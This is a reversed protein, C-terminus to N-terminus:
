VAASYPVDFVTHLHRALVDLPLAGSGLVADHFAKMDFDDGHHEAIIRRLRQIELRGTMYSLAQAPMAIYRSIEGTIEAVSAPTNAAMYDIAQQRSCCFAHMGTDVVLRSARWADAALMGLLQIDSSYLGMEFALRESYLGWGEAYANFLTMRRIAPMDAMDLSLQLQFHHGPVAEHFAVSELDFIRRETPKSVNQYYAGARSGDMAAAMYYAMGSDEAEVEPIPLVGCEVSPITGFWEPAVSEARRVVDTVADLMQESSTWRLEPDTAMRQFISKVDTEGFVRQGLEAFDAHIQEIIALGQAHLEEPTLMTTTHAQILGQYMDLGDPLHILGVHEDERAGPLVDIILADRYNEFASVVDTLVRERVAELFHDQGNWEGSIAPMLPPAPNGLFNNIQDIAGRVLMKVPMRGELRGRELESIAQNLYLPIAQLRELFDQAQQENTIGVMRLFALLVSAPAVPFASVTYTAAQAQHMKDMCITQTVIVDRTLLDQQSLQTPDVALAADRIMGRQAALTAEHSPDLNSLKKDFSRDGILSAGLPDSAMIHDFLQQALDSIQDHSNM